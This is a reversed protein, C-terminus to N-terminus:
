VLAQHTSRQISVAVQYMAAWDTSARPADLICILIGAETLPHQNQFQRTEMGCRCVQGLKGWDQHACIIGDIYLSPVNTADNYHCCLFILFFPSPRLNPSSTKPSDAGMEMTCPCPLALLCPFALLLLSFFLSFSSSTLHDAMSSLRGSHLQDMPFYGVEPGSVKAPQHSPATPSHAPSRGVSATIPLGGMALITMWMSRHCMWLVRCICWPWGAAGDQNVHPCGVWSDMVDFTTCLHLPPQGQHAASVPLMLLAGRTDALGSCFRGRSAQIGWSHGQCWSSPLLSPKGSYYPSSECLWNMEGQM